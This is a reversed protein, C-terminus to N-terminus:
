VTAPWPLTPDPSPCLPLVDCFFGLIQPDANSMGTAEVNGHSVESGRSQSYHGSIAFPGWGVSAETRLAEEIITQDEHSFQGEITLNRAVIIGTPLLPMLGAREEGPVFAGSSIQQGHLTSGQGLRWTHARFVLPDLWPRQITARMLDMAISIGTTDSSSTRTEKSYDASGSVRWLGWSASVGGGGSVASSTAQRTVDQQTFTFKTWGEEGSFWGYEPYTTSPEFPKGAAANVFRNRLAEWWPNPNLAELNAITARATEIQGKFGFTNWNARAQNLANVLESPIPRGSNASETQATAYRTLATQYLAEYRVYANYRPTPEFRDNMVVEQAARLQAQQARTLEIAPLEKGDLVQEYISSIGTNTPTYVWNPEPVNDLLGAWTQQANVDRELRLSPDLLIGPNCLAIYNQGPSANPTGVSLAEALKSYLQKFLTVNGEDAM